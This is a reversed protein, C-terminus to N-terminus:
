FLIGELYLLLCGQGAAQCRVPDLEKQPLPHLSGLRVPVLKAELVFDIEVFARLEVHGLALHGMHYGRSTCLKHAFFQNAIGGGDFPELALDRHIWLVGRAVINGGMGFVRLQQLLAGFCSRLCLLVGEDLM